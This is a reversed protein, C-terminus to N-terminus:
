TKPKHSVKQSLLAHCFGTDPFNNLCITARAIDM